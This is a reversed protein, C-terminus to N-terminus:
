FKDGLFTYSTLMTGVAKGVRRVWNKGQKNFFFFACSKEGIIKVITLNM